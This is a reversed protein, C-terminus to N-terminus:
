QRAKEVESGAAESAEFNRSAISATINTKDRQEAM